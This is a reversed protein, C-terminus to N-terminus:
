YVLGGRVMPTFGTTPFHITSPMALGGPHPFDDVRSTVVYPCSNKFERMLAEIKNNSESGYLYCESSIITRRNVEAVADDSVEEFVNSCNGEMSGIACVRSSIPVTVEVNASALGIGTSKNTVPDCYFVPQDSIVFRQSLDRPTIYIWSMMRLGIALKPIQAIAIAITASHSPSVKMGGNALRDFLADVEEEHIHGDETFSRRLRERFTRDFRLMREAMEQVIPQGLSKLMAVYSPTRVVLAGIYLCLQELGSEDLV